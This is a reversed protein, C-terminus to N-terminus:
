MLLQGETSEIVKFMEVQRGTIADIYVYYTSDNYDGSFEYCLKEAKTGIPVICIRSSTVQIDASIKAQAQGKTLSPKEINRQTHNIYYSSAELGIVKNTEACVRVKILDSYVIVGNSEYAFNITYLNNSLNIWVAKMNTVGTKELFETAVKVADEQQYNVERCSGSYAFMVLKGGKKSIQAYLNQGKLESEINFTEIMATTEGVRKVKSVGYDAFIENFKDQAVAGNIEEGTLGKIEKRNLGDSFPGDYILEPYEVSLNQLEGFNKVIINGNGAENLTSFSFDSGMKAVISQLNQKFTLNAKYLARLNERDESSIGEGDIIKKNLYKAYDGIQNVLKTTYFKNEDKLPLLGLDSECLESEVAIDLLYKQIAGEDKTALVKSLNLDINDVQEVTDYFSKAYANEMAVDAEQPILYTLTLATALAITSISLCIVAVLWGKRGKSLGKKNRKPSSPTERKLSERKEIRAKQRLRKLTAREEATKEKLMRKREQEAKKLEQKKALREQKQQQKIRQKETKDKDEQAKIREKELAHEIRVQAKQEETLSQWKDSSINEVKEIASNKKEEM